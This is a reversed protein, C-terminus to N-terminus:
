PQEKEILVFHFVANLDHTESDRVDGPDMVAVLDARSLTLLRARNAEVLRHKFATLDMGAFGPEGALRRWVHSIFVKNDGFRGSPCDRAVARVTHAFASLDFPGEAGPGTSPHNAAVSAPQEGGDQRNLLDRLVVERLGEMGSRSAGLLVRPAHKTLEKATMVRDSGLLRSLVLRRVGELSTQDPFGLEKCALAQLVVSLSPETGVTLGFRRQLLCAALKDARAIRQRAEGSASRLGLALPALYRAKITKWNCRPPLERTGLFALARARGAATLRLAKPELLESRRLQDVVNEFEEESPARQAFKGLDERLRGRGPTKKAPVALRALLLDGIMEAEPAQATAPATATATM